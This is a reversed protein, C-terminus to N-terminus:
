IPASRQTSGEKYTSSTNYCSASGDENTGVSMGYQATNDNLDQYNPFAGVFSDAIVRTNAPTAGLYNM